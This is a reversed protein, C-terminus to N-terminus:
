LINKLNDYSEKIRNMLEDPLNLVELEIGSPNLRNKSGMFVGGMYTSSYHWKGKITSIISLAGSSLAPAVYPKFGTKRVDINANLAKETLYKSLADDYNYISDAIVLGNGHPGFARGEKAYHITSFSKKSYYLARANMVGLGYGRIQNSALGNFDLNNNCDKNSELFAVKCLLDVPDSVVAFIGKFKSERAKKAYFSVIKSNEEFQVMRVDKVNDGVKPVNKSACFVFMDCNFIDEENIIQIDPYNNENFPDIIQNAEYEWRLLGNLDTQYIGIKSICDGGLLRLGTLLTGGVDGLGVININWKQPFNINLADKWNKYETNVSIVKREKIKSLMWKPLTNFQNHRRQHILYIDEKELFMLSPHSVCFSRRSYLPDIKNLAFIYGRYKRAYDESVLELDEYKEKSILIKDNLKYYFM